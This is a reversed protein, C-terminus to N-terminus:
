LWLDEPIAVENRSKVLELSPEARALDLRVLKESSLINPSGGGGGWDDKGSSCPPPEGTNFDLHLLVVMGLIEVLGLSRELDLSTVGLGLELSCELRGLVVRVETWEAIRGEMISVESEWEITM